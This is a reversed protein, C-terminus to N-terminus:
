GRVSSTDLVAGRDPEARRKGCTGKRSVQEFEESALFGLASHSRGMNDDHGVSTTAWAGVCCPFTPAYAPLGGRGGSTSRGSRADAVTLFWAENLCEDQFGGHFRELHASQPPRGRGPLTGRIRRHMM